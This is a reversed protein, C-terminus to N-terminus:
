EAKSCCLVAINSLNLFHFYSVHVYSMYFRKSKLGTELVHCHEYHVVHGVALDEFHRFGEVKDYLGSTMNLVTGDLEVHMMPDFTCIYYTIFTLFVLYVLINAM